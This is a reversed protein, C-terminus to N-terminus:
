DPGGHREVVGDRRGAAVCVLFVDFLVARYSWVKRGSFGFEVLRDFCLIHM